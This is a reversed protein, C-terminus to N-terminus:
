KNRPLFYGKICDTNRVSIQIHSKEKIGSGPYADIGEQFYGYVTDYTIGYKSMINHAHSIVLCDLERWLMIGGPDPRTNKYEQNLDMDLSAFMSKLEDYSRKLLLTSERECLNLCMGLDIIAGIVAPTQIKNRRKAEVAWEYARIPDNLWFYVGDGLWDYTNTSPTLHEEHSVLVKDVVSQDCGHFGLVIQPLKQYIRSDFSDLNM